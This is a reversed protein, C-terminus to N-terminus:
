IYRLMSTKVNRFEDQEIECGDFHFKSDVVVKGVIFRKRLMAVFDNMDLASGGLLFDDTVKAVILIILRSSNRKIFMQSLGVIRELGATNLMWDEIMKQWQRGAEVIGYPRKLLKWLTMRPGRWERPPRVYIDRKVPGSQLYAGKIDATTLRFGLFTVLSLLLRITSLQATSSDKRIDNKEDDRNGHPVIRAKLSRSGDEQTKVKYVVHSTIVNAHRLASHDCVDTYAEAWNSNHETKFAEELIWPPAFALKNASVQKSGIVDYFKSMIKEREPQLEASIDQNHQLVTRAYPGVDDRPGKRQRAPKDTGQTALLTPLQTTSIKPAPNNDTADVHDRTAESPLRLSLRLPSPPTDADDDSNDESPRAESAYEFSCSMLETTLESHPAVRVDEYAARMPRGHKSRRAVLCDQEAQVFTASIWEDKENQKTIRYFIWVKDGPTFM